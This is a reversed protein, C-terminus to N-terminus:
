QNGTSTRNMGVRVATLFPQIRNWNEGTYPSTESGVRM